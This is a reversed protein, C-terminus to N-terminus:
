EAGARPALGEEDRGGGGAVIGRAEGGMLVLYRGGDGLVGGLRGVTEDVDSVGGLVGVWPVFFVPIVGVGREAVEERELSEAL